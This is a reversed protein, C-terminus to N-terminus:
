LSKSGVYVMLWPSCKIIDNVQVTICSSRGPVPQLKRLDFEHCLTEYQVILPCAEVFKDAPCSWSTWGLAQSIKSYQYHTCLKINGACCLLWYKGM